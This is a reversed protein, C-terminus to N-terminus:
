VIKIIGRENNSNKFSSTLVIPYVLDTKGKLDRHNTHMVLALRNVDISMKDFSNVSFNFVHNVSLCM